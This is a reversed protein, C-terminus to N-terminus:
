LTDAALVGDFFNRARTGAYAKVARKLKGQDMSRAKGRVNNLVSERDEALQDLNNMLDVLLFEASAKLPFHPKMRFDFVRNGLKFRGHRKHNYVLQENYLQTTGVGLGNYANYSTLLFRDDKLFSRVLERDDPPTKGFTSHRPYFYLGGSLKDLVGSSVLEQVHRDVANSWQKLDSRRYVQGPRLHKKLEAVAATM